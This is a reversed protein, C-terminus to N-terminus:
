GGGAGIVYECDRCLGASLNACAACLAAGCDACWACRDPEAEEGCVSCKPITETNMTQEEEAKPRKRRAEKEAKERLRAAELYLIMATAPMGMRSAERALRETGEPTAYGLPPEPAPLRGPDAAALAGDIKAIVRLPARLM